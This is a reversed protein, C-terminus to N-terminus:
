DFRDPPDYPEVSFSTFAYVETWKIQCSESHCRMYVFYSDDEWQEGECDYKDTGCEPCAKPPKGM